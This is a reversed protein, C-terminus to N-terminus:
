ENNSNKGEALLNGLRLERLRERCEEAKMAKEDAECLRYGIVAEKLLNLEYKIDDCGVLDDFLSLAIHEMEAIQRILVDLDMNDLIEVSEIICPLEAAAALFM